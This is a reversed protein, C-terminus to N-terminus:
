EEDPIVISFLKKKKDCYDQLARITFPHKGDSTFTYDVNGDLKANPFIVYAHILTEQDCVDSGLVELIFKGKKPFDIATAEVAVGSEMEYEYMVFLEDGAVLETPVTVTGADYVFADATAEEAATYAKGLTGDGNLKYAVKVDANPTHALTYDTTDAKVEITEFAPAVIKNSASAVEKDKGLQAAYLGLDFLSNEASFDANRGRDFEAIVSGMADVAQAADEMSVSLTPDTIQNISWMYEGAKNVMIGRLVHDIVFTNINVM